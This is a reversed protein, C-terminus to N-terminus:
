FVLNSELILQIKTYIRMTINHKCCLVVWPQIQGSNEAAYSSTDTQLFMQRHETVRVFNGQSEVM